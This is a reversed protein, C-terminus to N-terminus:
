TLWFDKLQLHCFSTEFPSLCFLIKKPWSILNDLSHTHISWPPSTSWTHKKRWRKTRISNSLQLLELKVNEMVAPSFFSRKWLSEWLTAWGEILWLFIQSSPIGLRFSRSQRCNPDSLEVWIDLVFLPIFPDHPFYMDLLSLCFTDIVTKLLKEM